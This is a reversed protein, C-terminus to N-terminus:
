VILIFNLKNLVSKVSKPFYIMQLDAKVEFKSVNPFLKFPLNLKM